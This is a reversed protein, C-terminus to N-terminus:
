TNYLQCKYDRLKYDWVKMSSIIFLVIQNKSDLGFANSRRINNLVGTWQQSGNAM